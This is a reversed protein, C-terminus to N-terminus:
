TREAWACSGASPSKMSSWGPAAVTPWSVYGNLSVRIRRRKAGHTGHYHRGTGKRARERHGRARRDPQLQVPADDESLGRPVGAPKLGPLLHGQGLPDYDAGSTQTPLNAALYWDQWGHYGCFALKDRGTSARVIRVAIAVTEGGMRGLRVMDAWPHIELLLEVLEVEKAPNLTCMVGKTVADVAAATVDPDAYGLICAGIGGMSMDIYKRGDLDTVECGRAEAYYTPWQRPAFMEQRKGFLHTGGPIMTKAKEYLRQGTGSTATATKGNLLTM